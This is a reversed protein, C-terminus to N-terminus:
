APERPTNCLVVYLLLMELAAFLAHVASMLLGMGNPLVCLNLFVSWQLLVVAFRPKPERYYWSMLSYAVLTNAALALVLPGYEWRLPNQSNQYYTSAMWICCAVSMLASAGRGMPNIEGERRCTLFPLSAGTLIMSVGRLRVLVTLLRTGASGASFMERLGCAAFCVFAVWGLVAPFPTRVHLAREATGPLATRRLWVLVFALMAAGAALSYIVYIVSIAAGRTMLGTDAEVATRLQLWRLFAGFVGMVMSSVTIALADKQM